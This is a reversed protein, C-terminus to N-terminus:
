GQKTSAIQKVKWICDEEGCTPRDMVMKIENDDRVRKECNPCINRFFCWKGRGECPTSVSVVWQECYACKVKYQQKDM